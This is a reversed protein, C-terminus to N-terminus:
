SPREDSSNVYEEASEGENLFEALAARRQEEDAKAVVTAANSNMSAKPARGNRSPKANSAQRLQSSPM